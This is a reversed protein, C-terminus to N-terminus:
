FIPKTVTLMYINYPSHMLLGYKKLFSPFLSRGRRGCLNKYYEGSRLQDCIISSLILTFWVQVDTENFEDMCETQMLLEIIHKTMPRKEPNFEMCDMSIEFCVRIQGLVTDIASSKKM